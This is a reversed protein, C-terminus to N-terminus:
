ILHNSNVPSYLFSTQKARFRQCVKKKYPCSTTLGRLKLRCSESMYCATSRYAHHMNLKPRKPKPNARGKIFQILNKLLEDFVTLLQDISPLAKLVWRSLCRKLHAFAYTRNIRYVTPKETDTKLDDAGDVGQTLSTTAEFKVYLPLVIVLWYVCSNLSCASVFVRGRPPVVTCIPWLSKMCWRTPRGDADLWSFDPWVKSPNNPRYQKGDIRQMMDQYVDCVAEMHLSRQRMRTM